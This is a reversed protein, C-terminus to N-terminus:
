DYLLLAADVRAEERVDKEEEPPLLGKRLKPDKPEWILDSQFRYM